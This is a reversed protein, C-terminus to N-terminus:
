FTISLGATYVAPIPYTSGDDVGGDLISGGVEPTFGSNYRWTLLNQGNIYFRISSIKVKKTVSTPLTYGIQVNRLRLYSGNELLNTSPLYNHGRSKDLIPETTSTGEGHWRSLQKAYYNVNTWAVTKKLDLIQCGVVGNFDTSIDLGKWGFTLGFGYTFDPLPSGIFTRDKDTIKKDGDLDKFRIDGPKVNWPMPYYDDIEQQNQFIGDQVYGYYSGIPEGVSTRHYDGSIIDANKNGLSLVKNTLTSGNINLGYRFDGVKDNWEFSFELGHNRISGANTIAYGEGLSSSPSVYALLDYTVKNYWGLEINLRQRFMQGSVGIDVGSMVEWHINKDIEYNLTPIYVVKGNMLVQKGKPNITPYYLYNGIKDNGLMGWSVRLKAFSILSKPVTFFPEDSFVWGFGVAPFVGWRHSPSFKSSGDARVTATFLYRDRYSYTGRLIYSVFAYESFWDNASQNIGVGMSLTRLNEPVVNMGNVLSDVSGNFGDNIYKRATFGATADIRHNELTKKFNLIVDAQYTRTVYSERKFSTKPSKQSSFSGDNNVDYKPTYNWGNGFTYDVYGTAKFTFDKLFRVEAFADGTVRYRHEKATNKYLEMTAVPNPVNTQIDASPHYLSGPNEPDYDEVPAYPVYNPIAMVAEKISASAAVEDIKSLNADAGLRIYDNIRYVQSFRANVRQYNNYKLVGDQYFYAISLMTSSKEGSHSVKLNHGTMLASGRLLLEQWDTGEGLMEPVWSPSKPNQNYLMENYLMAFEDADALKVRDRCFVSQGGLYSDLIVAVRQESSKQTTIIIVGNAGQVGFAALSSPDKLVEISEIDSAVVNSIDDLFMGDVIYLPNSSANITGIGRIKIAPSAGAAGSNTVILGPVRGQLGSMVNGAPTTKVTEGSISAIAGTLDRKRSVGYGTVVVQDLSNNEPFLTVSVGDSFDAASVRHFETKMGVFIFEMVDGDDIDYLVYSGDEDTQTGISKDRVIISVFPLPSGDSEYVRGSVMCPQAVADFVSACVMLAMSMIWTLIFRNSYKM